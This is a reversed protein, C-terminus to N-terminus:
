LVGFDRGVTHSDERGKEGGIQLLSDMERLGHYGSWEYHDLNRQVLVLCVNCDFTSSSSSSSALLISLLGFRFVVSFQRDRCALHLCLFPLYKM